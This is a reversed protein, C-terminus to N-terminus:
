KMLVFEEAATPHMAVTRDFDKKTAGMKVAIAAMQIIEAADPGLMHVGLVRDTTADVVLKCLTREDRLALVNRMPRFDATFTRVEHGAARAAEDTMGVAAMPPLSFVASAVNTIDTEIETDGLLAHAVAHGQRIAVPTLQLKDIVDGVAYIHPQSTRFESDVAIANGSTLTVGAAVTNLGEINPVRGIAYLIVDTDISTGDSLHARLGNESREISTFVANLHLTVGRAQMGAQLKKRMDTDWGRLMLDGRYLQTVAVGLGNMISAFEAAIYGGGAILIRKPLTALTFIENSTIGLEAGPCDPLQPRAGTAIIIKDASLRHGAIELTHADVFRAHGEFLQVGNSQLTNIYLGNLRSVEAQVADRLKAWDLETAGLAWGFGRADAFHQAYEAAYVLLKKPVCGRIVCTGGVRYEEAIGVKLGKAAAIRAARVGGSGAGIVFLDFDRAM